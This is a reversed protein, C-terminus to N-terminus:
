SYMFFFSNQLTFFLPRFQPGPKVAKQPPM